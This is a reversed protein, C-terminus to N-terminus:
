FGLMWLIMYDLNSLLFLYVLYRPADILKKLLIM